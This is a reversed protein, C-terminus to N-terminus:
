DGNFHEMSTVHNTVGSCESGNPTASPPNSPSANVYTNGSRAAGRVANFTVDSYPYYSCNLAPPGYWEVFNNIYRQASGYSVPIEITGITYYTNSTVNIIESTFWSGTSTTYNYYTYYEYTTGGSWSFPILTQWGNGENSFSQSTGPGYGSIGGFESFIARQGNSDTQLGMYGGESGNGYDYWQMAYYYAQSNQGPM